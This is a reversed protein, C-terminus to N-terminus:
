LLILGEQVGFDLVEVEILYDSRDVYNRASSHLYAEPEDVIDSAVPNNHIYNLKQAIFKPYNLEKPCNNQQRVQFEANRKNYKAHYRFVM